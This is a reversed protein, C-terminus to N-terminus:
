LSKVPVTFTVTNVVSERQFQTWIRYLGPRPFVINFQVTPGGNALFPHLHLLDILDSSVALMHAWAGLYPQLGDAPTLDYFLKTQLGAVPESPDLRLSATLNRAPCPALSAALKSQPATGTVILTNVALQPVSGAPYYDALMRYMGGYPLKLVLTFSGDTQPQPHMHEFFALNESVVFLHMLKEHVTEFNKVAQGTLPNLVRFRLTVPDGPHLCEPRYSVELPYELRDPVRTVLKMGCRPCVGPKESRYDPDMPCVWDKPASSSDQVQQGFSCAAALLALCARRRNM